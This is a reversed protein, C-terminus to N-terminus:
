LNLQFTDHRGVDMARDKRSFNDKAILVLAVALHNHLGFTNFDTEFNHPIIEAVM